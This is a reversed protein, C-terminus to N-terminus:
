KIYLKIMKEISARCVPCFPTSGKSFMKCDMMPRYLDKAAYGAGEFLGVENRYEEKEPTPIPIGKKIFNGWKIEGMKLYATINPEWPELGKPYFDSYAVKSTYYEDALGAFSHGLEHLFIYEDYENDSPFIAWQNFIGAGGYRNTNVMILLTDYCAESAVDRVKKNDPATLYREIEFTNFTLSLATDKYLGKRPESVGSDNGFIKVLWINISDRYREYPESSLLIDKYREADNMMKKEESKTYGEPLILIDLRDSCEGSYHLGIKTDKNRNKRKIKIKYSAPDIKLSFLKKQGSAIVVEVEEKPYPFRVTNHFTRKMIRAEDTTQWEGFLTCFGRSYIMRSSKSHYVRLQECGYGTYDILNIKSGAWEGEVIVEDLTIVEELYNGTIYMDIRMTKNLFYDEFKVDQIQAMFLSVIFITM